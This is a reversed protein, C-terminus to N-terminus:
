PSIKISGTLWNIHVLYEFTASSLSIRGGTSSGNAFFRYSGVSDSEQESKATTILLSANEPLSLKKDKGLLSYSQNETDIRLTVETQTNIAKTRASKLAAAINRSAAKM